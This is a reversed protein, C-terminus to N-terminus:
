DPLCEERLIHRGPAWGPRVSRRHDLHRPGATCGVLHWASALFEPELEDDADLFAVFDGTAHGVGLNRAGSAGVHPSTLLRVHNSYPLLASALDDSSGDDVVLIDKAPQTQALASQIARGIVPAAEYAPIVISFTPLDSAAVWGQGPPVRFGLGGPPSNSAEASSPLGAAREHM